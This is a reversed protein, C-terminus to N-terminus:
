YRPVQFPLVSRRWKLYWQKGKNSNTTPYYSMSSEEASAKIDYIYDEGEEPLNNGLSQQVSQSNPISYCFSSKIVQGWLSPNNTLWFWELCVGQALLLTRPTLFSFVRTKVSDPLCGFSFRETPKEAAASAVFAAGADAQPLGGGLTLFTFGPIDVIPLQPDEGRAPKRIQVPQQPSPPSSPPNSPEPMLKRRKRREEYAASTSKVTPLLQLLGRMDTTPMKNIGAKVALGCDATLLVSPGLNKAYYLACSLVKDDNNTVLPGSIEEAYSQGRLWGLDDGLAEYIAKLAARAQLGVRKEERKLGDLEQIVVSPLVVVLHPQFKLRLIEDLHQV